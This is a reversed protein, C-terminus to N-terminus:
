VIIVIRIAFDGICNYHSVQFGPTIPVIILGGRNRDGVQEASKVGFAALSVWAGTVIDNACGFTM